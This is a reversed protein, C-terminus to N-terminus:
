RQSEPFNLFAFEGREAIAAADRVKAAEEPTTFYGLSRGAVSAAWPKSLLGRRSGNNANTVGIFPHQCGARKKRNFANQRKTAPRLNPRRNDLGNLNRHDAELGIGPRLIERHLYLTHDNEVRKAYVQGAWNIHATWFVGDIQATDGVSVLTVYGKTVASWAHDGCECYQAAPPSSRAISRRSFDACGPQKRKWEVTKAVFKKTCPVLAAIERALLGEEWYAIVVKRKEAIDM